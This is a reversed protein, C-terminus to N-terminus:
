VNRPVGKQGCNGSIICSLAMGLFKNESTDSRSVLIIPVRAGIVFGTHEAHSYHILTKSLVNGCEISPVLVMDVKGSIESKIGKREAAARSAVVDMAMPGEVVCKCPLDDFEGARSAEVLAAADTTAPMKHDVKENAAICAVNVRKYGLGHIADVANRLIQKKRELDPLINFGGDSCFSLREEGPIEMVTLHSLLRGTRLGMERDLVARLFDQTNVLGKMLADVGGRRALEVAKLAALSSTDAHVIDVKHRIGFRETWGEIAKEDGVMVAGGLGRRMAVSVAGVSEDDAAAVCVRSGGLSQNDILEMFKKYM